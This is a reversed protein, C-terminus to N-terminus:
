GLSFSRPVAVPDVNEGVRFRQGSERVNAAKIRSNEEAVDLFLNKKKAVAGGVDIFLSSRAVM